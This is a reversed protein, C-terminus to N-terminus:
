IKMGKRDYRISKWMGLNLLFAFFEGVFGGMCFGTVGFLEGFLVMFALPFAFAEAFFLIHARWYAGIIKYYCVIETNLIYFVFGLGCSITLLIAAHLADTRDATVFLGTIPRAALILFGGFALSAVIAWRTLKRATSRLDKEAEEHEAETAAALVRGVKTGLTSNVLFGFGVCLVEPVNNIAEFVGAGAVLSESFRSLMYLNEVLYFLAAFGYEMFDPFGTLFAEKFDGPNLRFSTFAALSNKRQILFCYLILYANAVAVSVVNVAMYGKMTPGTVTVLISGSLMCVYLIVNTVLLRGREEFFLLCSAISFISQPIFCFLFVSYCDRCLSSFGTSGDNAGLLDLMPEKFFILLLTLVTMITLLWSYGANKHRRFAEMNDAGYDKSCVVQVGNYTMAVFASGVMVCPMIVEYAAAGEDGLFRTVFFINILNKVVLDMEAILSFFLASVVNYRSKYNSM